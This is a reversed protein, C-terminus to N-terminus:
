RDSCDNGAPLRARGYAGFGLSGPGCVPHDGRVLYTFGEGAPPLEADGWALGGLGDAMCLGLHTESLTSLQGRVIAYTVAGAAPDWSLRLAGAGLSEAVLGQVEAAPRVAPDALSCDCADGAGDGDSDTQTPNPDHPCNDCADGIGDHVDHVGVLAVADVEEWGPAATQVLVRDVEWPKEPWRAELVEGCLTDDLGTWVTHYAMSTDRVDIRRVFGQELSEHVNIGVPRSPMAYSLELWEPASTGGLPSWNTPADICVGPLEPEGAAQMASYDGSSYESTAFAAQTWQVLLDGDGDRQGPNSMGPCNDCADGTGDSDTDRQEPQEGEDVLGDCDDDRFNCSETAGPHVAADSDDCDASCIRFGDGDADVEDQLPGSACDDDRGNCAEAAGPHVEPDFPACDGGGLIGPDTGSWTTCAVHGDGDHDVEDPRLFGDGGQDVGDCRELVVECHSLSVADIDAGTAPAVEGEDSPLDTIRLAQARGLSTQTLELRCRGGPCDAIQVYELGDESAEVRYNEDVGGSRAGAEHVLLDIGAESLLPPFIQLVLSGGVGLSVTRNDPPGLADLADADVAGDGPTFSMVRGASGCCPAALTLMLTWDVLQGGEGVLDDTVELNWTGAASIGDLTGLSGEPRFRGTFPESGSAIGTAAEDDFSTNTFNAGGNDTTLEVRTGDPGILFIDL